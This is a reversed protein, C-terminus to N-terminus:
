PVAGSNFDRFCRAPVSERPWDAMSACTRAATPPSFIVIAVTIVIAVVCTGFMWWGGM